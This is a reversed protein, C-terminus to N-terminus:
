KIVTRMINNTCNFDSDICANISGSYDGASVAVGNFLITLTEGPAISRHFSFTQFTEGGGLADYRSSETYAPTTHDIAIGNLYNLSIDISMLQVTTSGTNAVSIKLEIGDGVAAELPVDLSVVVNEPSQSGLWALGGFGFVIVGIACVLLALCGGAIWLITKNGGSSNATEM